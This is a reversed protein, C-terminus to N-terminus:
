VASCKADSSQCTWRHASKVTRTTHDNNAPSTRATGTTIPPTSASSQDCTGNARLHADPRHVRSARHTGMERCLPERAPEAAPDQGDDRGRWRLDRRLCRHVQRRPGPDPLPLLRNPRRPGHAPQPGAPASGTVNGTYPCLGAAAPQRFTGPPGRHDEGAPALRPAWSCSVVAKVPRLARLQQDGPGAGAARGPVGRGGDCAGRAPLQQSNPAPLGPPHWIRSNEAAMRVLGPGPFGGL